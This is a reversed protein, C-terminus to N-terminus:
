GVSYDGCIEVHIRIRQFTCHHLGGIPTRCKGQTRRLEFRIYGLLLHPFLPSLFRRRLPPGWRPFSTCASLIWGFREEWHNAGHNGGSEAVHVQLDELGGATNLRCMRTVM